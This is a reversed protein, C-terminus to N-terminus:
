EAVRKEKTLISGGSAEIQAVRVGRLRQKWGFEAFFEGQTM